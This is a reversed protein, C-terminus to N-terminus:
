LYKGEIMKKLSNSRYEKSYNSIVYDKINNYVTDSHETNIYNVIQKANSEIDDPNSIYLGFNRITSKLGGVGSHIVINGSALAEVASLGFGEYRSLQFHFKSRKLLEIKKTESISGTFYINKVGLELILEELYKTGDGITGIIFFKFLPNFNNLLNFVKIARDIGKRKVNEVTGMWVVTTFTLEKIFNLEIYQQVEIAHPFIHLKSKRFSIKEVNSFDSESVINCGDSVLYCLRFLVNQIINEKKTFFTGKALSDIGGTFFVKKGLIKSILAPILGIRYFYIFAIDYTNFKFFDFYNNSINVKYGLKQLIEIDIKYFLQVKFLNLDKVSSYFLIQKIKM